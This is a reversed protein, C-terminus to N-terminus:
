DRFFPLAPVRFERGAGARVGGVICVVVHALSILLWLTMLIGLPFFGDVPGERTALFLLVFHGAVLLVTLLAYTLGWNAAHRGNVADVGGYRRRSRGVGAMVIGSGVQALFPIPVLALVGLAWPAGSPPAPPPQWSPPPGYPSAFPEAPRDPDHPTM